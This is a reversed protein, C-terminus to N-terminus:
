CSINSFFVYSFICRTIQRIEDQGCFPKSKLHLPGPEKQILNAHERRTQLHEMKKGSDSFFCTAM